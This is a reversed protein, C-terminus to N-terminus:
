PKQWDVDMETTPVNLLDQPRLHRTVRLLEDWEVKAWSKFKRRDMRGGSGLEPIKQAGGEVLFRAFEAAKKKKQVGKLARSLPTERMFEADLNAGNEVALRALAVSFNNPVLYHLMDSKFTAGNEVMLRAAEVYAPEEEPLFACQVLHYLARGDSVDVGQDLLLRMIELPFPRRAQRDACRVQQRRCLYDLATIELTTDRLKENVDIKQILLWDITSISGGDIAATLATQPGDSAGRTSSSSQSIKVEERVRIIAFILHPPLWHDDLSVTSILDLTSRDDASAGKDLLVQLISVKLGKLYAICMLLNLNIDKAEDLLGALLDPIEMELADLIAKELTTGTIEHVVQNTARELRFDIHKIEIHQNLQAQSFFGIKTYPCSGFGCKFSRMHSQVHRDRRVKSQFGIRSWNCMYRNCKYLDSGYYRELEEHMTSDPHQDLTSLSREYEEQCTKWAKTLPALPASQDDKKKKENTKSQEESEATMAENIVRLWEYTKRYEEMFPKLDLVVRKMEKPDKMDPRKRKTLFEDIKQHLLNFELTGELGTVGRKIHDLWFSMAYAQLTYSGNTIGRQIEENQLDPDNCDLMLYNMCTRAIHINAEPKLWPGSAVQSLYDKATFHVFQIFDGQFEIIPGCYYALDRVPRKRHDISRDGESVTLAQIVEQKRLRVKSCAIWELTRSAYLKENPPLENIRKLIRGYAQDLGEPLNGAEEIIEYLTNKSKLHQLVLRVYLFMGNAKEPVPRTLNEIESRYQEEIIENDELENLWDDLLHRFVSKIDENNKDEVPVHIARTQLLESIDTESRSSLFIKLDNCSLSLDLISRLLAGRDQLKLEDLGDLILYTSGCCKILNVLLNRVFVIDAQLERYCEDYARQLVPRLRPYSFLVQFILSLMVDLVTM